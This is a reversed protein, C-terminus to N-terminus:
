VKHYLPVTVVDPEYMRTGEGSKERLVNLCSDAERTSLGAKRHLDTYKFKLPKHSYSMSLLRSNLRSTPPGTLIAM